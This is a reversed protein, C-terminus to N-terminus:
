VRSSVGGFSTLTFRVLRKGILRIGRLCGLWKLSIVVFIVLIIGLLGHALIIVRVTIVVIM